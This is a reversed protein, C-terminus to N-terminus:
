PGPLLATFLPVFPSCAQIYYHLVLLHLSFLLEM